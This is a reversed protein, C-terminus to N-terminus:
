SAHPARFYFRQGPQMYPAIIDHADLVEEKVVKKWSFFGLDGLKPHNMSHNGILHGETQIQKMLESHRKANKAVIFFTGKVQNAKLVSLVKETVGPNPGDDFTLIIQYKGRHVREINGSAFEKNIVQALSTSILLTTLALVSLKTKM